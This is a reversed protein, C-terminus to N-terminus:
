WTYKCNLCKYSKGIKKSLLGLGLVSVARETGSIKQVNSSHCNPCTILNRNVRERNRARMRELCENYDAPIENNNFKIVEAIVSADEWKISYESMLMETIRIKDSLIEDTANNDFETLDHERDNSVGPLGKMLIKHNRKNRSEKIINMPCGCNTCKNAYESVKSNCEPCILLSM